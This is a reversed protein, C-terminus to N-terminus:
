QSRLLFHSTYAKLKSDPGPGNITYITIYLFSINNLGLVNHLMGVGEVGDSKVSYKRRRLYPMKWFVTGIPIANKMVIKFSIQIPLVLFLLMAIFCHEVRVTM